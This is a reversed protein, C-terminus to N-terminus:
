QKVKDESAGANLKQVAKKALLVLSWQSLDRSGVQFIQKKPDEGGEFNRRVAVKHTSAYWM